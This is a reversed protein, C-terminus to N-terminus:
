TAHCHWHGATATDNAANQGAVEYSCSIGDKSATSGSVPATSGYGFYTNVDSTPRLDFVPKNPGHQAHGAETGGTLTINCYFVHGQCNTQMKGLDNIAVPPLYAVNTCGGAVNRFSATVSGCSQKNIQIHESALASRAQQEAQAFQPNGNAQTCSTSNTAANGRGGVHILTQPNATCQAKTNYCVTKHTTHDVGCYSKPGGQGNVLSGATTTGVDNLNFGRQLLAPNITNLIVWALLALLLGGVAGAIRGKADSKGSPLESFIYEVGGVIIMFVALIGAFGITLVYIGELYTALDPQSTTLTPLPELLIYGNQAPPDAYVSPVSEFSLVTPQALSISSSTSFHYSFPFLFLVLFLVSAILSVPFVSFFFHKM